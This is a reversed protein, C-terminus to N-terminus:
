KILKTLQKTIIIYYINTYTIVHKQTYNPYLKMHFLSSLERQAIINLFVRFLM